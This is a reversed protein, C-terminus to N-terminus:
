ESCARGLLPCSRRGICERGRYCFAWDNGKATLVPSSPYPIPEITEIPGLEAEIEERTGVASGERGDKLKVWSAM